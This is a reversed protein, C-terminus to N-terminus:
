QLAAKIAEVTKKANGVFFTGDIEFVPRKLFTYDMFLFKKYDADENVPNQELAEKWKRARKNILAEYSKTYAYMQAVQSETVPETKIDQTEFTDDVGVDNMIRKCTDCTSLFYVKKM